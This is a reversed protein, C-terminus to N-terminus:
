STGQHHLPGPPFKQHQRRKKTVPTLLHFLSYTWFSCSISVLYSLQVYKPFMRKCFRSLEFFGSVERVVISNLIFSNRVRKFNRYKQVQGKHMEFEESQQM